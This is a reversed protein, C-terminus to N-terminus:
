EDDAKPSSSNPSVETLEQYLNNVKELEELVKYAIKSSKYDLSKSINILKVKLKEYNRQILFFDYSGKTLNKLADNLLNTYYNGDEPTKLVFLEHYIINVKTEFIKIFEHKDEHLQVKAYLSIGYQNASTEALRAINNNITSIESNFKNEIELISNPLKFEELDNLKKKIPELYLKWSFFSIAALVITFWSTYFSLQDTFFGTKLEAAILTENLTKLSDSIGKNQVKLSSLENQMLLIKANLSDISSGVNQAIEQM